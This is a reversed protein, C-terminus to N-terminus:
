KGANAMEAAREARANVEIPDLFTEVTEKLAARVKDDSGTEVAEALIALRRDLEETSIPEDIEIFIKENDTKILNENKILLEEYLKEGPRLGTEVIEIDEGPVFGSLRIMNVALDIIKVPRGMDLVFLEGNKATAGSCLVLQAAEPITMFYRVIRKDTITVPGGNAIQRRFLPIVSGNSGLVNGFRTASFKTNGGLRGHTLVIRECIRKTAGMVNTPNVAKDTSIMIFRSVGFKESVLVTNLTGFVNNRVAEICNHEMLPVHKHAAAHLVIDPRYKEFVRELDDVNCVSVIEVSVKLSDRYQMMLEQQIEYAGNEYIDLIVIHGAGMSALRRCLESGISGGGGTILVTKDKYYDATENDVVLSQNRFLLEEVNIERVVRRGREGSEPSSDRMVPYDYSKVKIGYECYKNYLTHFEDDHLHPLAFVIEQVNYAEICKATADNESIVPIGSIERGIKEESIDIFLVPVYPSNVANKLEAALGVGTNGAGVIAIRIKRGTITGHESLEKSIHGLTFVKLALVMLRGPFTAYNYRTYMYRYCMRMFLALLLDLCTIAFLWIIPVIRSPIFLRVIFFAAFAAADGLCLKLYSQVGGYRWIQKYVGFFMRGILLTIFLATLVLVYILWDPSYGFKISCAIAWLAAIVSYIILDYIVLQWRISRLGKRTKVRNESTENKQM